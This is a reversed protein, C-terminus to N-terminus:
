RASRFSFINKTKRAARRVPRVVGLILGLRLFRKKKSFRMKYLDYSSFSELLEPPGDIDSSPIHTM